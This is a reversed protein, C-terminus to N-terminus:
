IQESEYSSLRSDSLVSFLQTEVFLKVFARDRYPFSDVFSDKLLLSVRDNNSQVNTITHSRLNSCLSELYGRMVGLFLQAAEAQAENCKHVPHRKAISDQCALRAHIPALESVLERQRPLSPLTCTKVQNKYVNIRILNSTKMKLEAPKHQIGVVFPVPADLFEHMKRPLVPLLLSQWEFPRIMPIISLVTASLIGLNPCIVVVQKELLAGTFLALVSELSLARCVTATTWVSLAFAEEAAALKANVEAIELLSRPSGTDGYKGGLGLSPVSPRSYRIPQLHELPQFVIEEGRSPIPFQHYGCVIQLLDNKHVKAWDMVEEDSINKEAGSNVEDVDDDESGISRVSSFLSESSGVREFTRGTACHFTGVEPSAQGNEYGGNQREFSDFPCDSSESVYGDYSQMSKRTDKDIERSQSLDSAESAPISVPSVPESARFSFSQVENDSILGAAAAALGLVSDVPIAFAMWDNLNEGNPSEPIENGRERVKVMPPVCDTLTMENVFETIRDLREQAIISNLMEYHLEFFPVRTLICYCRPASVLFRSSSSSQFQPSVSGLIGPPRQVIEQVHLCVGYLTANDAVKLSFIFSLDDRSLHEQGYVVENLDSMSPTREMLRAKVGGPFCFAPLDKARMALRKGPPYKFLIQPELAPLPPGRYQLKANRLDIIESKAMESEWTKRRAFADETAEVNANSHLGVIVFHEFLSTPESYQKRELAHSHLQYWQRKQNALIEPNFSSKGGQDRPNQGWKWAKQMQRKWRQFSNNEQKSSIVTSPRPRVSQVAEVAVRAVEETTPHLVPSVSDNERELSEMIDEHM